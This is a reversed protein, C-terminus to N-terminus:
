AFNVGPKAFIIVLTQKYIVQIVRSDSIRGKCQPAWPLFYCTSIHELVQEMMQKNGADTKYLNKILKGM